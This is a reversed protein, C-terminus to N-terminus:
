RLRPDSYASIGVALLHLRGPRRTEVWAPPIAIALPASAVGRRGAAYAVTELRPVKGDKRRSIRPYRSRNLGQIPPVLGSRARLVQGDIRLEVEGIGGGKNILEYTIEIEGSPLRTPAGVLRIEPPLSALSLSTRVDGVEAV